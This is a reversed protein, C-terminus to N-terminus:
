YKKKNIKIKKIEELNYFWKMSDKNIIDHHRLYIELEFCLNEKGPAKSIQSYKDDKLTEEIYKTIINKKMGDNGCISGTKIQTGKKGEKSKDRIKLHISNTAAKYELYGIILAPPSEAKIRKNVNKKISKLDNLTPEIFTNSEYKQIKITDNKAIKYGWLRDKDQTEDIDRQLYLLNKDLSKLLTKDILSLSKGSLSKEIVYVLLKEKKDPLLTDYLFNHTKQINNFLEKLINKTETNYKKDEFLELKKNKLSDIEFIIKAIDSRVLEKNQKGQTYKYDTM